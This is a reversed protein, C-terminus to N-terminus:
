KILNSYIAYVVGGVTGGFIAGEIVKNLVTTGIGKKFEDFPNNQSAKKLEKLDSQNDALETKITTLNEDIKALTISQQNVITGQKEIMADRQENSKKIEQITEHQQKSITKLEVLIEKIGELNEVKQYIVKVDEKINEIEIKHVDCPLNKGDM